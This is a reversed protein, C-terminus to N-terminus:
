GSRTTNRGVPIKLADDLSWKMDHIRAFVTKYPMGTIECAEALSMMKGNYNVWHTTRRNRSQLKKEIWKCNEPCYNGDNDIREISYGEKYGNNKAWESFRKYEKWEDCVSIGRLAYRYVSKEKSKPDCRTLMHSWIIYLRSGSEGHKVAGYHTKMCGCSLSHGSIVNIPEVLTEKGCDCRCKWYWQKGKKREVLEYGIVTLKGFKKDIWEPKNYKANKACGM